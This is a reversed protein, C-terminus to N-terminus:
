GAAMAKLEAVSTALAIQQVHATGFVDVEWIRAKYGSPLRVVEGTKTVSAKLEGDAYVSITTTRAPEPMAALPDGALTFTNIPAGGIESGLGLPEDLLAENAAVVAARAAEINAIEQLSPADDSDVRIVALNVPAALLVPKSKWYQNLPQGSPADFRKVEGSDTLFYLAGESIDYFFADALVDSHSLFAGSGDSHIILTGILPSGDANVSNYSAIYRGSLQGACITAPNFRQWAERSFLQGTILQVQGGATALVLGEHSPYAIAFGLDVVGLANVCPLNSEIKVMQM